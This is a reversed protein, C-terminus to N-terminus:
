PPQGTRDKSYRYFTFSRVVSIIHCSTGLQQATFLSQNLSSRWTTPSTTLVLFPCEPTTFGPRIDLKLFSAIGKVPPPPRARLATYRYASAPVKSKLRASRGVWPGREARRGGGDRSSEVVERTNEPKWAAVVQIVSLCTVPGEM